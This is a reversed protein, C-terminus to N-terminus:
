DKRNSARSGASSSNPTTVSAHSSGTPSSSRATSTPSSSTTNRSSQNARSAAQSGSVQVSSTVARSLSSGAQSSVMRSRNSAVGSLNSGLNSPADVYSNKNRSGVNSAASLISQAINSARSPKSSSLASQLTSSGPTSLTSQFGSQGRGVRSLMSIVSARGVGPGRSSVASDMTSGFKSAPLRSGGAQSVIGSGGVQSGIDSSAANSSSIISGVNSHGSAHRSSVNSSMHSGARSVTSAAMGDEGPGALIESTQSQYGAISNANSAGSVRSGMEAQLAGAKSETNAQSGAQEDPTMQSDVAANSEEGTKRKHGACGLFMYSICIMVLTASFVAQM